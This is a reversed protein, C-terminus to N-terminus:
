CLEGGLSNHLASTIKVKKIQGILAEDAFIHVPQAYPSRGIIQGDKRGKRDFLVDLERGICQDNFRLNQTNLEAQLIALREAKVAEDIQSDMEAAPTGPRPSYKFSYAQIFGIERVFDVTDQFDKDTEGPFGVIFDSSLAIDSRYQRLKDVIRRYEDVTHRRNMNKLVMDSGAQIPLHLYPMLKPIDRHAKLLDDSMEAPYSTTYRIRELGKIEALEAILQSLEWASDDWSQGHWANVNQGLLMIEQAGAEVLQLAETMIKQVPRSYEAGRTYPVVCYTCFKDCGEQISLFAASNQVRSEKHMITQPLADFKDDEPFDLDLVRGKHALDQLMQPLKQYSQPGFVLDVAPARKIIEDGQAQAVCGAIAIILDLGLAKRRERVLRMRGIESFVKEAAKERIHCTNLIVLSADEVSQAEHWGEAHLIEKMRSSDYVNMQCGFTIIHFKKTEKQTQQM